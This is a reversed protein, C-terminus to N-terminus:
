LILLQLSHIYEKLENELIKQKKVIQKSNLINEKKIEVKKTWLSSNPNFSCSSIFIILVFLKVLYKM